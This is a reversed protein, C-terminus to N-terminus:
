RKRLPKWKYIAASSADERKVLDRDKVAKDTSLIKQITLKDVVAQLEKVRTKRQEIERVLRKSATGETNTKPKELPIEENSDIFRIHKNTTGDVFHIRNELKEIKKKEIQLKWKVYNLDQTEMLMKQAPTATQEERIFDKVHEGDTLKTKIMGFYFEDPNKSQAIKRLAKLQKEKEKYSRARLKYDKKKELLGLGERGSVQGRERHPKQRAKQAKVFSM